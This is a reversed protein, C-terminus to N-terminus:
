IDQLLAIAKIVPDANVTNGKDDAFDCKSLESYAKTAASECKRLYEFDTVSITVTGDM